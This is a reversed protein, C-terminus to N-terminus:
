SQRASYLSINCAYNFRTKYNHKTTAKEPSWKGLSHFFTYNQRYLFQRFSNIGRPLLLIVSLTIRRPMGEQVIKCQKVFPSLKKEVQVKSTISEGVEVEM